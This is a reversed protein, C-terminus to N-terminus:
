LSEKAIPRKFFDTIIQDIDAENATINYVSECIPMDVKHQRALEVVVGATFVGESVSRRRSLIDNLSQGEGLAMGLSMNRSQPSSCTLVLDGLGSLGTLTEPRANLAIGLRTLEAFGRTILAAKASAGLKRGDVVGCAIALVNKIAGGIQAGIMDDSLYPRLVRSNIAHALPAVTEITKGALTIATPLGSAVDAAFSPGSLVAPEADPLIETLIETMFRGTAREIGKSCMVILMGQHAFPSFQELLKRTHQAPSVWLIMDLGQLDAFDHTASIDSSLTTGPLYLTNEHATNISEAVEAEYAWILSKTGAASLATALATGWAGGGVIGIKNATM